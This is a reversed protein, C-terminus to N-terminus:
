HYESNTKDLEYAPNLYKLIVRGCESSWREEVPRIVIGERKFKKDNYEDVTKAHEIVELSWPGRYVEEVTPLNFCDCLHKVTDWNLFKKGVMIDFVRIEIEDRDVGYDYGKQIGPGIIEAYISVPPLAYDKNDLAFHNQLQEIVMNLAYKEVARWYTDKWYIKTKLAAKTPHRIKSHSGVLFEMDDYFGFFSQIHEWITKKHAKKFVKGCRFNTGHWKITAVVEEGQNLVAPFKKFKEVCTYEIFNSNTYHINIGYKSSLLSRWSPPPPEYKKIGLLKTVDNGERIEKSDLWDSPTLCLGESFVGRIKTCRIRGNEVKIKNQALHAQINEPVMSDVPIYLALDGTKFQDLGVISEFGGEGGIRAIALKDANPHDLIEVKVIKAEITSM